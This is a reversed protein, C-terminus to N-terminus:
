KNLFRSLFTQKLSMTKLCIKLTVSLQNQRTMKLKLKQANRLKKRRVIYIYLKFTYMSIESSSTDQKEKHKLLNLMPNILFFRTKLRHHEYKNDVHKIAIKLAATVLSFYQRYTAYM